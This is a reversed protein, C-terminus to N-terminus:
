EDAIEVCDMVEAVLGFETRDVIVTCEQTVGRAHVLAGIVFRDVPNGEEDKSQREILEEGWVDGAEETQGEDEAYFYDKIADSAAAYIATIGAPAAAKPTSKNTTGCASLILSSVLILIHKTM